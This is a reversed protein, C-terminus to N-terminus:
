TFISFFFLYHFLNAMLFQEMFDKSFSCVSNNM